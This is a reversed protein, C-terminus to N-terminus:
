RSKRRNKGREGIDFKALGRTFGNERLECPQGILDRKIGRKERPSRYGSGGAVAEPSSPTSARTRRRRTKQTKRVAKNCYCHGRRSSAMLGVEPQSAIRLAPIRRDSHLREDLTGLGFGAKVSTIGDRPRHSPQPLAVIWLSGVSSNAEAQPSMTSLVLAHSGPRVEPTMALATCTAGRGRPAWHYGPATAPLGDEVDGDERACALLQPYAYSWQLSAITSSSPSKVVRPM